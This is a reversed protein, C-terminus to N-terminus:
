VEKDVEKMLRGDGALYLKAVVVSNKTLLYGMPNIHFKTLIVTRRVLAASTYGINRNFCDIMRMTVQLHFIWFFYSTTGSLYDLLQHYPEPASHETGLLKLTAEKTVLKAYSKM